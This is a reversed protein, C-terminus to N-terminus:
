NDLLAALAAELTAHRFRFGAEQLRRPEVKTSSLLLERGMQGFLLGVAFAPLPLVTPRSLVRGLERTLEANTVPRPAVANVPGALGDQEIAFVISEVVDDLSIWSVVQRGSGLRGGLGLRFPTLMKALAGGRESFVVGLRLLVVRAGADAAPVTAAEWEKTIEALFGEGPVSAEDVSESGRDGYYGIASANVWAPRPPAMGALARAILRTGEVRSDRIERRARATWRGDAIGRGALNVVAQVGALREADIRGGTPDWSIEDSGRAARRVLRLVRYGGARLRAVLATGVLGGSGGVAVAPSAAPGSPNDSVSMAAM